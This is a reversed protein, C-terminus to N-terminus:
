EWDELCRETEEAANLAEEAASARDEWKEQVTESETEDAKEQAYDRLEELATVLNAAYKRVSIISEGDVKGLVINKTKTVVKVKALGLERALDEVRMADNKGQLDEAKVSKQYRRKLEEALYYIPLTEATKAYEAAKAKADDVMTKIMEEVPNM